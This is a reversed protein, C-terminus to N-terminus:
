QSAPNSGWNLAFNTTKNLVAKNFEGKYFPKAKQQFLFIWYSRKSSVEKYFEGCTLIALESACNQWMKKFLAM